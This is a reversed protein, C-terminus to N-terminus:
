DWCKTRKLIRTSMRVRLRKKRRSSVAAQQWLENWSVSFCHQRCLRCLYWTHHLRPLECIVVPLHHQMCRLILSAAKKMVNCSRVYPQGVWSQNQAHVTKMLCGLLEGLWVNSPNGCRRFRMERSRAHNKSRIRFRDHRGPCPKDRRRAHVMTLHLRWVSYISVKRIKLGETWIDWFKDSVIIMSYLENRDRSFFVFHSTCYICTWVPIPRKRSPLSSSFGCEAWPNAHHITFDSTGCPIFVVLFNV